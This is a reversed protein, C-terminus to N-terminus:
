QVESEGGNDAAWGVPTRHAHVHHTQAIDDHFACVDLCVVEVNNLDDAVQGPARLRDVVTMHEGVQVSGTKLDAPLVTGLSHGSAGHVVRESTKPQHAHPIDSLGILRGSRTTQVVITARRSAASPKGLGVSM